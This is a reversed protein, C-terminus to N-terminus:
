RGWRLIVLVAQLPRYQVRFLFRPLKLTEAVQAFLMVSENGDQRIVERSAPEGLLLM